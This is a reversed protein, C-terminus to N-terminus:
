DLDDDSVSDFVIEEEVDRDNVSLTEKNCCRVPVNEVEQEGDLV